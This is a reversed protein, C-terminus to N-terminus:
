PQNVLVACALHFVSVFLVRAKRVSPNFLNVLVALSRGLAVGAAAVAPLATATTATPTSTTTSSSSTAALKLRAAGAADSGGLAQTLAAGSAGDDVSHMPGDPAFGLEGVYGSAGRMKRDNVLLFSCFFPFVLTLTSYHICRVTRCL